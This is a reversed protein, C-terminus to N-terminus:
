VRVFFEFVTRLLQFIKNKAIKKVDRVIIIIDVNKLYRSYDNFFERIIRKFYNRKVAKKIYKKAVVIGLRPNNAVENYIYYVLFAGVEIKQQAAYVSEYQDNKTLRFKKKPASVNKLM